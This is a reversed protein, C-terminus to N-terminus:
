RRHNNRDPCLQRMLLGGFVKEASSAPATPGHRVRRKGPRPADAAAIEDVHGQVGPLDELGQGFRLEQDEVVPGAVHDIDVQLAGDGVDLRSRGHRPARGSRAALGAVDTDRPGPRGRSPTTARSTVRNGRWQSHSAWWGPPAETASRFSTSSARRAFPPL